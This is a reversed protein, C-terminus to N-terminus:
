GSKLDANAQRIFIPITTVGSAYGVQKSIGM